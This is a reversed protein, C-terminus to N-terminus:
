LPNFEAVCKDLVYNEYDLYMKAFFDVAEKLNSEVTKKKKEARRTLIKQLNKLHCEVKAITPKMSTGIATYMM